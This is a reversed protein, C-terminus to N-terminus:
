LTTYVGARKLKLVKVEYWLFKEYVTIVRQEGREM